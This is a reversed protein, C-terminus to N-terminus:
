TRFINEIIRSPVLQVHDSQNRYVCYISQNITTKCWILLKETTNM